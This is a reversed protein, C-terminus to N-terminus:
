KQEKKHEKHADGTKEDMGKMMPCQSMSEKGMQMHQMMHQMMEEEMKAKKADMAIRQELMHTLVAAMLDMKKDKPANNMETVQATLEADQVKMDEKMKQKHEKMEQCQEMMKAKTMMKGEAPEASQSQVPSWITLALALALSSRILINTHTQKKM